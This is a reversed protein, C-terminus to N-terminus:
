LGRDTYIRIQRRRKAGTMRTLESNIARLAERIDAIDRNEVSKDGHRVSKASSLQKMLVAKQAELEEITAM